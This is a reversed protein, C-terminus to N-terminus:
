RRRPRRQTSITVLAGLGLLASPEPVEAALYASPVFTTGGDNVNTASGIIVDHGALIQGTVAGITGTTVDGDPAFLAGFFEGTMNINGHSELLVQSALASDVLTYDAGNVYPHIRDFSADGTVFVNIPGNSLDLYLDLFTGPSSISDFTYTGGSLHLKTAANVTLNGYSGPALTKNDFTNLTVDSGGSTFATAPPMDVHTYRRPNPSVSGKVDGGISSFAGQSLNGAQTVTGTVHASQGVSVDGNSGVNGSVNVGTLLNVNGGSVINGGITNYIQVSVPGTAIINGGVSALTADAGAHVSGNVTSLDNIRVSGNFIVDGTVNTRANWAVPITPNLSGGGLLSDLNAIGAQHTVDGNSGAPAGTVKAFGEFTLSDNGFVAYSNAYGAYGAPALAAALIPALLRPFRRPRLSM